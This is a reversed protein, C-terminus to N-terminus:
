YYRFRTLLIIFLPVGLVCVLLGAPIQLPIFLTRGIIDASLVLFAGMLGSIILYIKINKHNLKEIIINAIHPALLGVFGMTGAVSVATAAFGVSLILLIIKAQKVNVGFNIALEDGFSLANLNKSNFFLLPSLLLLIISLYKVDLWNASHVSGALWNLAVMADKVNGYTLMTTTLASIFTSLGVGILIFKTTNTSNKHASLLQIFISAILAGSFAWLPRYLSSIEPFLIIMTVVAFAAGQNVGILSPDALPNRTLRQLTAGSLGLMAGVLIAVLSRPLRFSWVVLTQANQLEQHPYYLAQAIEYFGLNYSGVFVSVGLLLMLSLILFLIVAQYHFIKKTAIPLM